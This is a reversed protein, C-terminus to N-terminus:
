NKMMRLALAHLDEFENHAHRKKTSAQLSHMEGVERYASLNRTLLGGISNHDTSDIGARQAGEPTTYPYSNYERHFTGVNPTWSYNEPSRYEVLNHALQAKVEMLQAQLAAVQM